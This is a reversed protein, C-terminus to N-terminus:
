GTNRDKVETNNLVRRLQEHTDLLSLAFSVERQPRKLVRAGMVSQAHRSADICDHQESVLRQVGFCAYRCLTDYVHSVVVNVYLM